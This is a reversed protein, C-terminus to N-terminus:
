PLQVPCNTRPVSRVIHVWTASVSANENWPALIEDPADVEDVFFEPARFTEIQEFACAYVGVHGHFLRDRREGLELILALKVM